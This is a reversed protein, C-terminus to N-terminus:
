DSSDVNHGFGCKCRTKRWGRYREPNPPAYEHDDPNEEMDKKHLEDAEKFERSTKQGWGNMTGWHKFAEEKTM